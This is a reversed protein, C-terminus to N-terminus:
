GLAGVIVLLAALSQILVGPFVDRRETMVATVGAIGSTLAIHVAPTIDSLQFTHPHWDNMDWQPSSHHENSVGDTKEAGKLARWTAEVRDESQSEAPLQARPIKLSDAPADYVRAVYTRRRDVDRKSTIQVSM